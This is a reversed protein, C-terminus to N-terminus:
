KKCFKPAALIGAGRRGWVCVCVGRGSNIVVCGPVGVGGWVAPKTGKGGQLEEEFTDYIVSEYFTM